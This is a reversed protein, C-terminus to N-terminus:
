VTRPERRYPADHPSELLHRFEAIGLALRERIATETRVTMEARTRRLWEQWSVPSVATEM